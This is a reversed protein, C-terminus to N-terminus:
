LYKRWSSMACAKTTISDPLCKDIILVLDDVRLGKLKKFNIERNELYGLIMRLIRKKTRYPFNIDKIIDFRTPWLENLFENFERDTLRRLKKFDITKTRAYEWVMDNKTGM